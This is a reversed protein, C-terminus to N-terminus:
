YIVEKLCLGQPPLTRGAKNRDRSKIIDPIERPDLKSIGVDLLTGAIIRAMNYLFGNAEIEITVLEQNKNVELRRIERVSTKVESGSARFSSFDHVGIFYGAARKMAELNLELPFFYSYFRLLPSPFSSNLISYVYIKGKASKTAHFSEPVIQADKVVIDEPLKSNIAYPLKEIPIRTNTTFNAVQGLAHVGADTRGAGIVNIKEGTISSIAKELVEQISLGNKQRQWGHYRTGDYELVIKVNM